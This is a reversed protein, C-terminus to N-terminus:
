SHRARDREGGLQTVAWAVTAAKTPETISSSSLPTVTFIFHNLFRSIASVRVYCM